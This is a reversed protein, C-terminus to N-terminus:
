SISCRVSREVKVIVGKGLEKLEVDKVTAICVPEVQLRVAVIESEDWKKVKQLTVTKGKVIGICGQIKPVLDERSTPTLFIRDGVDASLLSNINDTSKIEISVLPRKMLLTFVSDSIGTLAPIRDSKVITYRTLYESVYTFKVMIEGTCPYM